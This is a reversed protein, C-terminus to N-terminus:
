TTPQWINAAAVEEAINNLMICHQRKLSLAPDFYPFPSLLLLRGEACDDFDSGEPEYHPPFGYHLLRITPFQAATATKLINRESESIFAGILVAGQRAADICLSTYDATEDTTWDHRCHVALLLHRLLGFNGMADMPHGALFIDHHFAFLSRHLQRTLLRRPYTDMYNALYSLHSHGDVVTDYVEDALLNGILTNCEQRWLELILNFPLTAPLPATVSVLLHVYSPMIRYHLLTIGSSLSALKLLTQEVSKGAPSFLVKVPGANDDLRGLLAERSGVIWTILYDHPELYNHTHYHM